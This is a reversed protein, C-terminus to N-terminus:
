RRRFAIKNRLTLSPRIASFKIAKLSTALRPFKEVIFREIWTIQHPQWPLHGGFQM